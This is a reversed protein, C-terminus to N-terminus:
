GSIISYTCHVISGVEVYNQGNCSKCPFTTLNNLAFGLPFFYFVFNIDSRRQYTQPLRM